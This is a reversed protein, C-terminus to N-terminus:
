IQGADRLFERALTHAEALMAEDIVTEDLAVYDDPQMTILIPLVPAPAISDSRLRIWWVVLLVDLKGGAITWVTADGPEAPDGAMRDASVAYGVHRVARIADAWLRPNGAQGLRLERAKDSLRELESVSALRAPYTASTVGCNQREVRIRRHEPCTRM